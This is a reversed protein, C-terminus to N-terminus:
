EHLWASTGGLDALARVRSQQRPMSSALFLLQGGVPLETTLWRAAAHGGSPEIEYRGVSVAAILGDLM